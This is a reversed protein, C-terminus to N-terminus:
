DYCGKTKSPRVRARVRQKCTHLADYAYKYEDEEEDSCVYCSHVNVWRSNGEYYKGVPNIVMKELKAAIKLICIALEIEFSRGRFGNMEVTRLRNHSFGSLDSMEGKNRDVM